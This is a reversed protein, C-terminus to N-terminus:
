ATYYWIRYAFQSFYIRQDSADSALVDGDSRPQLKAVETVSLSGMANGSITIPLAANIAAALTNRAAPTDAFGTIAFEAQSLSTEGGLYNVSDDSTQNICIAPRTSSEKMGDQQLIRAATGSGVVATIGAITKLYVILEEAIHAV